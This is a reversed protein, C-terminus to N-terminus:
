TSRRKSWRRRKSWLAGAFRRCGSVELTVTRRPQQPVESVQVSIARASHDIRDFVERLSAPPQRADTEIALAQQEGKLARVRERLERTSRAKGGASRLLPEECWLLLADAEGPSLGLTERHHTISLAERRRSPQFARATTGFDACTQASPGTWRADEVMAHRAGYGATEAHVWWDGFAWGLASRAACLAEAVAVWGAVSLDAPLDLGVASM